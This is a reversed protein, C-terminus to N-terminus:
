SLFVYVVINGSVRIPTKPVLSPIQALIYGLIAGRLALELWDLGVISQSIVGWMFGQGTGSMGIERLYWESAAVKEFPM